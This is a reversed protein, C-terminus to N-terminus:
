LWVHRGNQTKNIGVKPRPDSAASNLVIRLQELVFVGFVVGWLLCRPKLRGSRAPQLLDLAGLMGGPSGLMGWRVWLMAVSMAAAAATETWTSAQDGDSSFEEALPEAEKESIGGSVLAKLIQNKRAWRNVIFEYEAAGKIAGLPNRIEHALGASM